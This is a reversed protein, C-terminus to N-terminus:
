SGSIRRGMIDYYEVNRDKNANIFGRSYGIYNYELPLIWEGFRNILGHKKDPTEVAYFGFGLYRIGKYFNDSFLEGQHTLLGTQGGKTKFIAMGTEPEFPSLYTFEYPIVLHGNGNAMGQGRAMFSNVILLDGLNANAFNNIYPNMQVAKKDKGILYNNNDLLTIYLLNNNIRKFESITDIVQNNVEFTQVIGNCDYLMKERRRQKNNVNAGVFTKENVFFRQHMPTIAEFNENLIREGRTMLSAVYRTQGCIHIHRLLKYPLDEQIVKRTAMDLVQIKKTVGQDAPSNQHTLFIDGNIQTIFDYKAPLIEKGEQDYVGSKRDANQIILYDGLGHIRQYTPNIVWNGQRDVLGFLQGHIREPDKITAVALGADNFPGIYQLPHHILLNGQFDILYLERARQKKITALQYEPDLM